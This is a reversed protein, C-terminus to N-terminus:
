DRTWEDRLRDAASGHVPDDGAPAAGSPLSAIETEVDHRVEANHAAAQAAAANSEAQDARQQLQAQATADSSGRRRGLVYAAGAAVVAALIATGWAKASGWFNLLWTM